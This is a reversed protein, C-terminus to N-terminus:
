HSAAYVGDLWVEVESPDFRLGRGWRHCPLGEAIRYRWWRESFGLQQQLEALTILRPARTREVPFRITRANM